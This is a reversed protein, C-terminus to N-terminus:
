KGLGKLATICMTRFDADIGMRKIRNFQERNDDNLDEPHAEFYWIVQKWRIWKTYHLGYLLNLWSPTDEDITIIGDVVCLQRFETGANHFAEAFDKDSIKRDVFLRILDKARSEVDTFRTRKKKRFKGFIDSLYEFSM